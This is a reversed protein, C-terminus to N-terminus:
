NAGPSGSAPGPTNPGDESLSLDSKSLVGKRFLADLLSHLMVLIRETDALSKASGKRIESILSLHTTAVERLDHELRDIRESDTLPM